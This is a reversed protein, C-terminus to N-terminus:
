KLLTPVQYSTMNRERLHVQDLLGSVITFIINMESSLEFFNYLIEDGFSARPKLCAVLMPLTVCDGYFLLVVVVVGGDVIDDM